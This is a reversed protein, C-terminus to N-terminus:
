KGAETQIEEPLPPEHRDGVGSFNRIEFTMRFKLGQDSKSVGLFKPNAFMKSAKLATVAKESADEVTGCVGSLAIKGAPSVSLTAIQMGKPLTEVLALLTDLMPHRALSKEHELADVENQLRDMDQLFPLGQRVARSAADYRARRVFFSLAILACLLAAGFGALVMRRRPLAAFVPTKRRRLAPAATGEGRMARQAAILAGLCAPFQAPLTEAKLLDLPSGHADATEQIVQIGPPIAFRDAPLNLRRGLVQAIRDDMGAGEGTVILRAPEVGGGLTDLAYHHICQDLEDGLRATPEGAAESEREEATASSAAAPLGAFIRRAYELRGHRVIVLDTTREEIRCVAATEEPTKQSARALEALAGADLQVAWPNRGTFGLAQEADAVEARPIALMLVPSEGEASGNLRECVWFSKEVPYPLETELRLAVMRRTDEDSAAPAQIRRCVSRDSGAVLIVQARNSLAPLPVTAEGPKTRADSLLRARRIVIGGAAVAAEVVKWRDGARELVIVSIAKRLNM